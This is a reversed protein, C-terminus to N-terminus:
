RIGMKPIFPSEYMKVEQFIQIKKEQKWYALMRENRARVIKFSQGVTKLVKEYSSKKRLFQAIRTNLIAGTQFNFDRM